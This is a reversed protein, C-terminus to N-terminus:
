KGAETIQVHLVRALLDHNISANRKLEGEWFWKTGDTVPSEARGVFGRTCPIHHSLLAM